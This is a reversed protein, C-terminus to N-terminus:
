RFFVVNTWDCNTTKVSEDVGFTAGAGGDHGYQAGLGVQHLAYTRVGCFVVDRLCRVTAHRFRGVSSEVRGPSISDTPVAGTDHDGGGYEKDGHVQRVREQLPQLHVVSVPGLM